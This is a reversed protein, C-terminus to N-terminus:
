RQPSIILEQSRRIKPVFNHLVGHGVNGCGVYDDGYRIIYFGPDLEQNLEIKEGLFWQRLQADNLSLIHKTCRPGIRQSGEISLRLEDNRWEGFYIGLSNVRLVSFDVNALDSHILYLNNRPSLLIGANLRDEFGFRKRLFDTVKRVRKRELLEWKGLHM